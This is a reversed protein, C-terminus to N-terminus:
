LRCKDSFHDASIRLARIILAWFHQGGTGGVQAWSHRGDTGM